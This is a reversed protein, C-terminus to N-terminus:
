SQQALELVTDKSHIYKDELKNSYQQFMLIMNALKMQPPYGIDSAIHENSTYSFFRFTGGFAKNPIKDYQFINKCDEPKM